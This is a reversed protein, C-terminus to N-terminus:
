SAPSLSAPMSARLTTMSRAIDDALVGLTRSLAAVASEYDGPTARDGATTRTAVVVRRAGRDSIRWDAVLVVEGAADVDFRAVEVTVRYDFLTVGVQPFAFVRDAPLRQALNEVLTRPLMGSLPSAWHDSGAFDVAYPSARTVIQPRDLAGPLAVPGVAVVLSARGAAPQPEGQVAALQYFRTPPTSSCAALLLLAMGMWGIGCAKLTQRMIM